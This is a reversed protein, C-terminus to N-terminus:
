PRFAAVRDRGENKARYLAKDASAILEDLNQMSATYTAVGISVTVKISGAKTAVEMLAIKKRLRKAVLVALDLDTEPFLIVFEEGGYRSVVDIERVSSRCVSALEKLVPDGGEVHGFQDNIRKFHDIDLMLASFHRKHREAQNLEVQGITSLGRRNYLGTLSDTLVLAQVENFLRANELWIAVHDAFASAMRVHAETFHNPQSADIELLGIVKSHVILPVGLWSRIHSFEYQHFLEFANQANELFYPHRSQIVVTNPNQGPYRFRMGIVAAMDSWGRGGIIELYRDRLLQVSATDCPVVKELQELIRGLAEDSNLTEAIAAGAKRLTESEEAQRNAQEMAQFKSLTLAILNAAEESVSIEERSFRHFHDFTLLLAGLKRGDVVLPMGLLSRSPFLAAIRPSVYPSRHSDEIVLSHGAELVSDTITREDQQLVMERYTDRFPGYAAQPITRHAGEDWRTLFCGDAGIMGALQDVLAQSMQQLDSAQLASSVIKNLMDLAQQHKQLVLASGLIEAVIQLAKIEAESWLREKRCDDFGMFGWYSEGAFIPVVALSLISQAALHERISGPFERVHGSIVQRDALRDDWEEFGGSRFPLDQLDPNDIQAEIGEEVWEYRQSMHAEGDEKIVREFLYVRSVQAARGIQEQVKQVSDEWAGAKLFEDAVTSVAQLIADRRQLAMEAQKRLHTDHITILQGAIRGQRDRVPSFTLEVFNTEGGDLAIEIRRDSQGKVQALAEPWPALVEHIPQGAQIAFGTQLLQHAAPNIDVIRELEDLVIMGDPMKEIQSDRAVPVLDLFKFRFITLALIAGAFVLVLPTLELGPLPSLGSVYVLNALWPSIGATLIAAAQRRYITPFRIVAAILLISGSFMALYSYGVAGIWFGIGHGYILLNTGAPGPTFSTWILHHWENTMALGLTVLPIIFLLSINRRTLFRELRNFELALLLYFVPCSVVGFYEIKSWLIKSAIGVSAYEVSTGLAWIAVAAMLLALLMGGVVKKRKWAVLAVFIALAGTIFSAASYLTIDM